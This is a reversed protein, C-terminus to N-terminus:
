VVPGDEELRTRKCQPAEGDVMTAMSPTSRKSLTKASGDDDGDDDRTLDISGVLTREADDDDDDDDQTLDICEIVKPVDAKFEQKIGNLRAELREIKERLETNSAQLQLAFARFNGTPVAAMFQPLIGSAELVDRSAYKYKFTAIPDNTVYEFSFQCSPLPRIIRQRDFDIRHELPVATFKKREKLAAEDVWAPQRSSGFWTRAILGTVKVHYVRLEISGLQEPRDGADGQAPRALNIKKFSDPLAHM